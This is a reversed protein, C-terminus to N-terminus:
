DKSVSIGRAGKESIAYNSLLERLVLGLSAIRPRNNFRAKLGNRIAIQEQAVLGFVRSASM